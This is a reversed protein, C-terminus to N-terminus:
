DVDDIPNILNKKTERIAMYMDRSISKRLADQYISMTQSYMTAREYLISLITMASKIKNYMLAINLEPISFYERLLIIMDIRESQVMFQSAAQSMYFQRSSRLAIRLIEIHGSLIAADTNFHIDHSIFFEVIDIHNKVVAVDCANSKAWYMKEDDIRRVGTSNDNEVWQWLYKVIDLNGGASADKLLLVSNRQATGAYVHHLFEKVINLKGFKCALSLVEMTDLLSVSRRICKIADCEVLDYINPDSKMWDPKDLLVAIRTSKLRLFFSTESLLKEVNDFPQGRNRAALIEEVWVDGDRSLEPFEDDISAFIAGQSRYNANGTAIDCEFSHLLADLKCM